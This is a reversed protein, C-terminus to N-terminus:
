APAAELVRLYLNGEITRSERPKQSGAKPGGQNGVIQGASMAYSSRSQISFGLRDGPRLDCRLPALAAGNSTGKHGDGTLSKQAGDGTSSSYARGLAVASALACGGIVAGIVIKNSRKM